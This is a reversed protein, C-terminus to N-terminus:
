LPPKFKVSEFKTYAWIGANRPSLYVVETKDGFPVSIEEEPIKSPEQCAKERFIPVLDLSTNIM